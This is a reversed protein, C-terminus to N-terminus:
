WPETYNSSRIIMLQRSIYFIINGEPLLLHPCFRSEVYLLGNHAADECFELAIREIAELDGGLAPATYQFGSLFTTLNAPEKMEVNETLDEITERGPLPLGKKKCLEWITSMRVCGDLHIHLEVRSLPIASKTRKPGWFKPEPFNPMSHLRRVVRFYIVHKHRACSDNLLVRHNEVVMYPIICFHVTKM